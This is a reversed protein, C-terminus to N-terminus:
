TKPMADYIVGDLLRGARKKGVKYVLLDGRFTNNSKRCFFSSKQQETLQCESIWEGWQKFFFPVNAALCQDRISRAWDPNMPRADHGSEGGVIVWNIDVNEGSLFWGANWLNIDGLLPECSLFRASADISLLHPIREDATEQNECTVGLWVNKPVARSEFFARMNKARKTLIQFTHQPCQEIIQMVREIYHYAINEHFLDAMSCVFIMSPKKWHLPKEFVADLQVTIGFGNEYGRTGMAQLRKAMTEAYCHKCGASIKTCGTIPNWTRETWEIKSM